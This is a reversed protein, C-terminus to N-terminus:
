VLDIEYADIRASGAATTKLLSALGPMAREGNGVKSLHRGPMTAPDIEFAACFSASAAIVEQQASLFLLPEHSSVVVALTSAAERHDFSTRSM